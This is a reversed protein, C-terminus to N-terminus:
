AIDRTMTGHLMVRWMFRVGDNFQKEFEAKVELPVVATVRFNQRAPVYIDHDEFKYELSLVRLQEDEIPKHMLHFNGFSKEGIILDYRALADAAAYINSWRDPQNSWIKVHLSRIVYTSDSAFTGPIVLNTRQPWGINQGSGFCNFGTNRADDYFPVLWPSGAYTVGPYMITDYVPIEVRERINALRPVNHEAYQPADYISGFVPHDSEAIQDTTDAIMARLENLLEPNDRAERLLRTFSLPERSVVREAQRARTKRKKSAM